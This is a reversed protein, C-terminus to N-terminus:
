QHTILHLGPVLQLWSELELTANTSNIRSVKALAFYRNDGEPLYVGIFAPLSDEPLTTYNFYTSETVPPLPANEDALPDTFWTTDWNATPVVGSLESPGMRPSALRYPLATGPSFNTVYLDVYRASATERMSYTRAFGSDYNWGYGANGTGDLESLVKSETHVPITSLVTRSYYEKGAFMAAVKYRGTMGHPNHVYTNGSTDGVLAFVTEKVPCFYVLFSDPMGQAPTTWVLQVTTDTAAAIQLNAPPGGIVGCGTFGFVTIMLLQWVSGSLKEAM